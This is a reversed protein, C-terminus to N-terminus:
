RNLYITEGGRITCYVSFDPNLVTFDASNGENISGYNELGLYRAPNLSACDAAEELTFGANTVLNKVAQNMKLVSGALTGDKLRAEGNKVFVPQGGLESEGDPMGKARMADTVLILKGKPKSKALLKIAPYSVHCGDAILETYLGDFLMAAGATGIERHHVGRQANFTHTIRDAGANMGEQIQACTADTHGMSVRVGLKKLYSILQVAGDLEPALTMTLVTNASAKYFKDFLKIDPAKVHEAPQAGIYAPSIFPGELHVGLLGNGERKYSAAAKLARLTNETSQTMTTALFRATGERALAKDIKELAGATGDMADAGDAGHVHIDIFAPLVVANEPIQLREAEEAHEGIAKVARDFVLDTKIIGKGGVYVNAQKFCKM